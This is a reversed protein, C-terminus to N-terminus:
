FKFEFLLTLSSWLVFTLREGSGVSGVVAVLSQNKVQININKLIPEEDGWTFTGKEIVLPSEIPPSKYTIISTFQTM